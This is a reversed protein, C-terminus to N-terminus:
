VGAWMGKEKQKETIVISGEGRILRTGTDPM